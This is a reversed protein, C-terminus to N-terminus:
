TVRFLPEDSMEVEKVMLPQGFRYDIEARVICKASNLKDEGFFIEIIRPNPFTKRVRAKIPENKIKFEKVIKIVSSRSIGTAKAIKSYSLGSIRLENVQDRVEETIKM